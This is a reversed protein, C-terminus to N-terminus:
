RICTGCANDMREFYTDPDAVRALLRPGLADLIM